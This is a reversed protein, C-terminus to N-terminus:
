DWAVELSVLPGNSSVSMPDAQQNARMREGEEEVTEWVLGSCVSMKIIHLKLLKACIVDM